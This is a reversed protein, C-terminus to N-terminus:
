LRSDKRTHTKAAEPAAIAGDILLDQSTNSPPASVANGNASASPQNLNLGQLDEALAADPLTPESRPAPPDPTSLSVSEPEETLLPLDNPITTPPPMASLSPAAVLNVEFSSDMRSPVPAGTDGSHRISMPIDVRAEEDLSRNYTRPSTTPTSAPSPIIDEATPLPVPAPAPMKHISTPRAMRRSTSPGPTITDTPSVPAPEISVTPILPAKSSGIGLGVADKTEASPSNQQEDPPVIGAEQWRRVSREAWAELVSWGKFEGTLRLGTIGSEGGGDGKHTTGGGGGYYSEYGVGDESGDSGDGATGLEFGEGSELEDAFSSLWRAWGAYGEGRFVVVKTDFDRGFIIVQGAEGSEGPSLDIGMYNGAKDTVLPIWGRQSYEKRIWGPPISDQLARLRPNAGTAPDDDVGRWFQWEELVDDLPMLTLGFFLGESCGAASEAEQGDVVLYSDRVAAPLQLGMQAEIDMLTQPDIGYNLTDDLEPYENALWTRIRQWTRTLSPYPAGNTTDGRHTPLIAQSSRRGTGFFTSSTPSTASQRLEYSTQPVSDYTGGHPAPPYTYSSSSSEGDNRYESQSSPLSFADRTSSMAQDRRASRANSSGGGGGFVAAISQFLSAM